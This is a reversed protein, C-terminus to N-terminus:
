LEEKGDIDLFFLAELRSIDDNLIRMRTQNEDTWGTKEINEVLKKMRELVCRKYHKTPNEFLM